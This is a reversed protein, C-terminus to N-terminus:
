IYEDIKSITDSFEEYLKIDMIPLSERLMKRLKKKDIKVRQGIRPRKLILYLLPFNLDSREGKLGLFPINNKLRIDLSKLIHEYLKTEDRFQNKICMTEWHHTRNPLNLMEVKTTYDREGLVDVLFIGRKFKSDASSAAESSGPNYIWNNIIFQKHFHGLALYDIYEKLYRIDRYKVGPVNVMQGQIGFHQILVHFFGDDKNIAEKVKELHKIETQGLYRTGYIIINKIQIKGGKCKKFDYPLFMSDSPADIEADLLIILGLKALFKLWSQGRKEFRVGRSFKRIDHNGEIAIIPVSDDTEERFWKIVNVVSTLKGPLMELSTFVDGGLIIFDVQHKIGLKLISEFARIFDDARVNSWYQGAGLHIDSAHIFRTQNVQKSNLGTLNMNDSHTFVM